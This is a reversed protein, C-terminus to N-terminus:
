EKCKKVGGRKKPKPPEHNVIGGKKPKLLLNEEFMKLRIRIMENVGLEMMFDREKKDMELEMVASGDKKEILKTIKM